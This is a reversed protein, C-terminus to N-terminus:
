NGSSENDEGAANDTGVGLGNLVAMMIERKPVGAKNAHEITLSLNALWTLRAEKEMKKLSKM